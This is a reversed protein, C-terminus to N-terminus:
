LDLNELKRLNKNKTETRSMKYKTNVGSNQSYYLKNHCAPCIYVNEGIYTVTSSDYISTYQSCRNCQVTKERLIKDKIENWEQLCDECMNISKESIYENVSTSDPIISATLIKDESCLTEKEIGVSLHVKNDKDTILQSIYIPLEFNEISM